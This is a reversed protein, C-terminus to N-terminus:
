LSSAFDSSGFLCSTFNLSYSSLHASSLLSFNWSAMEPVRVQLDLLGRVAPAVEVSAAVRVPEAVSNRVRVQTNIQASALKNSGTEPQPQPQQSSEAATESANGGGGEGSAVAAAAAAAMEDDPCDELATTTTKLRPAPPATMSGMSLCSRGAYNNFKVLGGRGDLVTLLDQRNIEVSVSVSLKDDPPLLPRQPWTMALVQAQAQAQSQSQTQAQAQSQLQPQGRVSTNIHYGNLAMNHLLLHCTLTSVSLRKPILAQFSLTQTSRAPIIVVGKTLAPDNLELAEEFLGDVIDKGGGGSIGSSNSNGNSMGSAFFQSILWQFSKLPLGWAPKQFVVWAAPDEIYCPVAVDCCNKVPVSFSVRTLCRLFGLSVSPPVSLRPYVFCLKFKSYSVMPIVSVESTGGGNGGIGSGGVANDEDNHEDMYEYPRSVFAVSGTQTDSHGAECRARSLVFGSPSIAGAHEQGVDTSWRVPTGVICTLRVTLREHPGMLLPDGCREFGSRWTGQPLVSNLRSSATSTGSEQTDTSCVSLRRDRQSQAHAVTVLVPVNSVPTVTLARASPNILQWQCLYPESTGALMFPARVPPVTSPLLLPQAGAFSEPAVHGNLERERDPSNMETLCQPSEPRWQPSEPIPSVFVTGTCDLNEIDTVRVQVIDQSAVNDQLATSAGSECCATDSSELNGMQPDSHGDLFTELDVNYLRGISATLIKITYRALGEVGRVLLVYDVTKVENPALSGQHEDLVVLKIMSNSHTPSPAMSQGEAVLRSSMSDWLAACENLFASSSTMDIARGLVHENQYSYSLPFVPSLNELQFSRTVVRVVSDVSSVLGRNTPSVANVRLVSSGVVGSFVVSTEFLKVTRDAKVPVPGPVLPFSLSQSNQAAASERGGDGTRPSDEAATATGPSAAPDEAMLIPKSFILRIGGVLERGLAAKEAITKPQWGSGASTPKSDRTFPSPIILITLYKTSGTPLPLDHAPQSCESDAFIFCQKKLNSVATVSLMEKSVNVMCLSYKHNNNTTSPHPIATLSVSSSSDGLTPSNTSGTYPIELLGLDLKLKGDDGYELGPFAVFKAKEVTVNATLAVVREDYNDDINDVLLECEFKGLARPLLQIEVTTSAGPAISGEAGKTIEINALDSASLSAVAAMSIGKTASRLTSCYRLTQSKSNNTVVVNAMKATGLPVENYNIYRDTSIISNIQPALIIPVHSTEILGDAYQFQVAVIGLVQFNRLDPLEYRFCITRTGGTAVAQNIETEFLEDPLEVLAEPRAHEGSFDAIAFSILGHESSKYRTYDKSSEIGFLSSEDISIRLSSEESSATTVHLSGHLFKKRKGDAGQLNSTKAQVLRLSAETMSLPLSRSRHYLGKTAFSCWEPVSTTFHKETPKSTTSMGALPPASV